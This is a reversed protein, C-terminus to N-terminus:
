AVSCQPPRSMIGGFFFTPLLHVVNLMRVDTGRTNFRVGMYKGKKLVFYGLWCVKALPVKEKFIDERICVTNKNRQM